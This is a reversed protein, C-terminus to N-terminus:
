GYPKEVYESMMHPIVFLSAKRQLLDILVQDVTGGPLKNILLDVILKAQAVYTAHAAALDPRDPLEVEMVLQASEVARDPRIPQAKFVSVTKM